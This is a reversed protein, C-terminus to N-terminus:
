LNEEADEELVRGQRRAYRSQIDHVKVFGLNFFLLNTGPAESRGFGRPLFARKM